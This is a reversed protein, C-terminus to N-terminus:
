SKSANNMTIIYLIVIISNIGTLKGDAEWRRGNRGGRVWAIEKLRFSLGRCLRGDEFADGSWHGVAEVVV